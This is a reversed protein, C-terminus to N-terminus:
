ASPAVLTLLRKPNDVFSAQVAKWSHMFKAADADSLPVVRLRDVRKERRHLEAEAKDRSGLDEVSWGSKTHHLIAHRRSVSADPLIASADAGRGLVM